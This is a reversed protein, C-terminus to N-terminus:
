GEDGPHMTDRSGSRNRGEDAVMIEPENALAMAIDVRRRMGGSLEHPYASPGHATNPIRVMDLLEIEKRRVDARTLPQHRLLTEVIQDSVRLLPNLTTLPDQFVYAIRNGRLHQLRELSAGLINEGRRRVGDSLTKGPPSPALGLLSLATVSIGSGSEGVIGLCEGPALSFFVNTVEKHIPFLWSRM